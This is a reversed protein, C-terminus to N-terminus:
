LGVQTQGDDRTSLQKLLLLDTGDPLFRVGGGAMVGNVGGPHASVLPNNPGHDDKIGPKTYDRMNPPYRVTTINWAQRPSYASGSVGYTPPVGTDGAGALCGDAMGGDIRRQIGSSDVAYDSCEGIALTKSLGDTIWATRIVKNPVLVGGASIDGDNFNPACCANTKREPFGDAASAGAIGVYHPALVQQGLVNKLPPLPSSPCLMVDIVINNIVDDKAWADTSLNNMDLKDSITRQDLYHWLSPWFSLGVVGGARAGMPLSNRTSEYTALAVGIQHLNEGCSSRRSAERARQIAPLLLAILTGTITIVALLEVITFAPREDKAWLGGAAAPAGGQRFTMM